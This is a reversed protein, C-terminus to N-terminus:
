DFSVRLGVQFAVTVIVTLVLAVAISAKWNQGLFKLFLALFVGTRLAFLGTGWLALYVATLGIAGVIAGRNEILFETAGESSDAGSPRVAQFLLAGGLLLVVVGIVQPFFGPGPLGGLGGPLGSASTILFGGLAAFCIGVAFNTRNMSSYPHLDLLGPNRFLYGFSDSLASAKSARRGDM